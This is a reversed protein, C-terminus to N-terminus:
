VTACIAARFLAPDLFEKHAMIREPIRVNGGFCEYDRINTVFIVLKWYRNLPIKGRIRDVTSIDPEVCSDFRDDILGKSPRETLRRGGRALGIMQLLWSDPDLRTLYTM